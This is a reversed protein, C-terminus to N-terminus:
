EEIPSIGIQIDNVVQMIKESHSEIPITEVTTLYCVEGFIDYYTKQFGESKRYERFLPWIQYADKDIYGRPGIERMLNDAEAFDDLIVAKALRFSANTASWDESSIIKKATNEDGIWKYAQARNVIFMRRYNDDIYRKPIKTAFDLMTCALNFKESELLDYCISNLNEDAKLRDDPLVKRWLVHALGVGMEFICDYVTKFYEPTVGLKHGVCIDKPLDVNHEECVNIYQRSIVGNSHVFLNRRETAEIFIPWIKLDKRLVVDYKKELWQIQETHSSRLVADIENEILHERAEEISNFNQLQSFTLIKDALNMSKPQRKSLVRIIGGLLVDYQSILSIMISRPILKDALSYKHNQMVLKVFDNFRKESDFRVRFGRDTKEVNGNKKEYETIDKANKKMIKSLAFMMPNITEALSDIHITFRRLEHAISAENATDQDKEDGM